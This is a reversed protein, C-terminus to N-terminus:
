KCNKMNLIVKIGCMILCICVIEIIVFSFNNSYIRVFSVIFRSLGFSILSIGIMKSKNFKKSNSLIYLYVSLNIISETIQIPIGYKGGCCGQIFCGIKLIGYMLILSPLYIALLDNYNKNILKSFLFLAFLSGIYGGIFSYGFLVFILKNYINNNNIFMMLEEINLELVIHFIKAFVIFAIMSIIYSYILEDIELGKIVRNLIACSIFLGIFGIIAIILYFINDM